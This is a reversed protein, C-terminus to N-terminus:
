GAIKDVFDLIIKGFEEATGRYSAAITAHNSIKNLVRLSFTPNHNMPITFPIMELVGQGPTLLRPKWEANPRYGTLLVCAVPIPDVGSVAGLSELSVDFPRMGIGETRFSLPRPFPHVLGLEDVIAYEDSYYVAGRRILDAVLTSKGEFSNAPFIIAKGNRGVVGAHLFVKDAAYEAVAIRVMSDFFKLFIDRSEGSAIEEGNQFMLYGSGNDSLEFTHDPRLNEVIRVLNLLSKRVVQEADRLLDLQNSAVKVTVGFSEFIFMGVSSSLVASSM